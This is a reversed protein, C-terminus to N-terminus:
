VVQAGLNPWGLWEQETRSAGTAAGLLLRTARSDGVLSAHGQPQACPRGNAHRWPATAVGASNKAAVAVEAMLALHAPLGIMWAIKM